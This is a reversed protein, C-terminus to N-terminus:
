DTFMNKHIIDANLAHLWAHLLFPRCLKCNYYMKEYLHWIKLDWWLLMNVRIFLIILHIMDVTTWSFVSNFFILFSSFNLCFLSKFPFFIFSWFLHNLKNKFTLKGPVLLNKLQHGHWSACRQPCFKTSFTSM